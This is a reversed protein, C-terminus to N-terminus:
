NEEWTQCFQLLSEFDLLFTQVSYLVVLSFNILEPGQHVCLINLDESCFQLIKLECALLKLDLLVHFHSLPQRLPCFPSWIWCSDSLLSLADRSPCFPNAWSSPLFLTVLNPWILGFSWSIWFYPETWLHNPAIQNAQCMHLIRRCLFPGYSNLVRGNLEINTM